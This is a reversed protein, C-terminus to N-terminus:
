PVITTVLRYPIRDAHHFVASVRVLVIDGAKLESINVSENGAVGQEDDDSSILPTTFQGAAYADLRLDGEAARTIVSLTGARECRVAFWDRLDNDRPTLLEEVEAGAVIPNAARPRGDPDPARALAPAPAFSATLTFRGEAPELVEVLAGCRQAGAVVAVVAEVGRSGMLDRDSRGGPSTQGSDELAMSLPQLDEDVAALVLDGDGEATVFLTLVGPGPADYWYVAPADKRTRGKLPAGMVLSAGDQALAVAAVLSLVLPTGARM